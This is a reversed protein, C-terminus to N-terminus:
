AYATLIELMGTIELEKVNDTLIFFDGKKVKATNLIGEGSLIFCAYYPFEKPVVSKGTTKIHKVTFCKEKVLTIEVANAMYATKNYIVPYLSPINVVDLSEKLHLERKGGDPTKRNYDYFRYTTDSNTAIEVAMIEHTLAHLTGSPVYVFDGSKVPLYTLYEEMSGKEVAEALEVRNKCTHGFVIKANEPADMIYWCEDKGNDGSNKVAYEDDPHVQISLDNKADILRIQLPFERSKIKSGFLAPNNNILKNLSMDKFESDLIESVGNKHGSIGWIEGLPYEKNIYEFGYIEQLKNGGWIKEFFLPKLFLIDAM